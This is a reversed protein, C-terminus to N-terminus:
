IVWTKKKGTMYSKDCEFIGITKMNEFSETSIKLCYIKNQANDYVLNRLQQWFGFLEPNMVGGFVSYQMRTYGYYLLKDAVKKRLRNEEIDYFILYM